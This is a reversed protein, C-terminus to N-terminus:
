KCVSYTRFTVMTFPVVCNLSAARLGWFISLFDIKKLNSCDPLDLKGRLLQETACAGRHSKRFLAAMRRRKNFLVTSTTLTAQMRPRFRALCVQGCKIARCGLHTKVTSTRISCRTYEETNQNTAIPQSMEAQTPWMLSM